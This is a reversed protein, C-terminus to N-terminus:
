LTKRFLSRPGFTALYRLYTKLRAPARKLSLAYASRAGRSDGNLMRVTGLCAANHAMAEAPPNWDPFRTEMWERLRQDDQWIREHKKSANGAHVRYMTLPEDVFAGDYREGIRLWMEWDGSGFYAPNFNGVAHFAARRVLVASAIIKNAYVLAPLLRGNQLQPYLFGLPAGEVRNRDGDIFYGNTHVLGVKPNAMAEVQKELKTPAWVDDDNLVAVFEGSAKALAANLAGYTGLNAENFICILDPQESLYERTGDTSGDDVAIIEYDRFTQARVSELAEPLHRLHNYCTLLISVRPM